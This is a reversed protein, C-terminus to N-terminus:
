WRGRILRALKRLRARWRPLPAAQQSPVIGYPSWCHVLQLGDRWEHAWFAARGGRADKEGGLLVIPDDCHRCEARDLVTQPTM